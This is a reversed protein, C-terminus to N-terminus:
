LLADAGSTVYGDWRGWPSSTLVLTVADGYRWGRAMLRAVAARAVGPIRVRATTAGLDAAAAISADLAPALDAPDLVAIPGIAGDAQVYAYGVTRRDRVIGYAHLSPVSAWFEHDEPRAVDLTARDIAELDSADPAGARLIDTAGTTAPGSLEVLATQPFMGFRGYLANSVANRADAGVTLLSAPRAATLARRIIEAGVGRSQYGPRVHLAALYWVHERQLAIGFGVLGGGAEAVWFGDPDHRLVSARFALFREPPDIPRQTTTWGRTRALDDAAELFVEYTPLSDGPTARRFGIGALREPAALETVVSPDAPRYPLTWGAM